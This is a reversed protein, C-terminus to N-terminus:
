LTGVGRHVYIDIKHLLFEPVLDPMILEDVAHHGEFSHQGKLCALTRQIDVLLSKWAVCCAHTVIRRM